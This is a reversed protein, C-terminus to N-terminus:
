ISTGFMNSPKYFYIDAYQISAHAVTPASGASVTVSLADYGADPTVTDTGNSTYTVSKSQYNGGGSEIDRVAAAMDEPKYGDTTGLKERIADAIDGYHKDDTTVIM